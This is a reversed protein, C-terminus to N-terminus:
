QGLETSDDNLAGALDTFRREGFQQSLAPVSRNDREVALLIERGCPVVRRQEESAEARGGEDVFYLPGAIGEHEGDLLSEILRSSGALEHEGSRGVEQGRQGDGLTKGSADVQDGQPRERHALEGAAVIVEDVTAEISHLTQDVMPAGGRAPRVVEFQDTSASVRFRLSEAVAGSPAPELPVELGHQAALDFRGGVKASEVCQEVHRSQEHRRGAVFEDDRSEGIAEADIAGCGLRVFGPDLRCKEDVSQWGPAALDGRLGDASGLEVDAVRAEGGGDDALAGISEGAEVVGGDPGEDLREHDGLNGLLEGPGFRGGSEMMEAIPITCSTHIM